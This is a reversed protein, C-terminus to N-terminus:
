ERRSFRRLLYDALNRGAIPRTAADTRIFFIEESGTEVFVPRDAPFVHIHCITKGSVIPFSIHLFKGTVDAIDPLYKRVV